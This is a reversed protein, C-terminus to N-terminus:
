GKSIMVNLLKRLEDDKVWTCARYLYSKATAKALETKHMSRCLMIAHLLISAFYDNRKCSKRTKRDKFYLKVLRSVECKKSDEGGTPLKATITRASFKDSNDKKVFGILEEDKLALIDVLLRFHQFNVYTQRRYEVGGGGDSEAEHELTGFQFMCAVVQERNQKHEESSLLPFTGTMKAFVDFFLTTTNESTQDGTTEPTQSDDPESTHSKRLNNIFAEDCKVETDNPKDCECTETQNTKKPCLPFLLTQGGVDKGDTELVRFSCQESSVSGDAPLFCPVDNEPWCTSVGGESESEGNCDPRRFGQCLARLFLVCHKSVFKEPVKCCALASRKGRTIDVVLQYTNTFQNHVVAGDALLACNGEKGESGPLPTVLVLYGGCGVPPHGVLPLVWQNKQNPDPFSGSFECRPVIKEMIKCQTPLLEQPCECKAQFPEGEVRNPSDTSAQESESNEGSDQPLGVSQAVEETEDKTDSTTAVVMEQKKEPTTETSQAPQNQIECDVVHDEAWQNTADIVQQVTQM